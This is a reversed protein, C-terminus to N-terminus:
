EYACTADLRNLIDQRNALRTNVSSTAYIEYKMLNITLDITLAHPTSCKM